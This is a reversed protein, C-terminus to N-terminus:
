IQRDFPTFFNKPKSGSAFNGACFSLKRIYDGCTSFGM